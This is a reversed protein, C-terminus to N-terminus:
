SHNRNEIKLYMQNFRIVLLQTKTLHCGKTEYNFHKLANFILYTTKFTDHIPLDHYNIFTDHILLYTSTNLCSM